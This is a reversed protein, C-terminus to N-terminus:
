EGRYGKPDIGLRRMKSRLTTPKMELLEAAGGPGGVRGGVTELVRAIHRRQVQELPLVRDDRDAKTSRSRGPAEIRLTSGTTLILAREIVNKLERVNGPWDWRQLRDMDSQRISEVVKNMGRGLEEVLAWVLLPIDGRRERLPPVVIPFVALRFYLDRRFRGAEVEAELDRNTAAIVRVDTTLTKPSGVREFEGVELVRLLKAQLELPLESIEDLLLTAGDAIEFRGAERSLAGTFAGKERGFLESEVLTSPLAACNVTVFPRDSRQSLEHLRRAVLEKGTGTEGEILVTTEAPAVQEVLSLVRLIAPSEGVIRGKGHRLHVERKLYANELELRHKLRQIEALSERIEGEARKRETVDVSAGLLLTGREPSDSHVRGQSRIWLEGGDSHVVRYEIDIPRRDDVSDGVATEVMERDEPHITALVRELTVTTQSDFRFLERARASAWFVGSEVDLEWMGIRASQAALELRAESQRLATEAQKRIIANTFIQAVLQLRQTVEDSWDHSERSTHFSMIGAIPGAGAVLPIVLISALEFHRWSELDIVAEPPADEPRSLRVTKGDLIKGLTWPFSERADLDSPVEPGGFRRYLHTLALRNPNSDCWQWLVAIDLGLFECVQREAEVITDDIEGPDLTILRAALDAVFAEFGVGDPPSSVRTEDAPSM